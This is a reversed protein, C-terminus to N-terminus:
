DDDKKSKTEVKPIGFHGSLENIQSPDIEGVISVITLEKPEAAIIALGSVRNGDHRLFVETNEGKKKSTVGVLRSWGPGRLQARLPELDAPDYEGTKDFEFSKVYVSKLGSVIKKAQADEGKDSLFRGALQLLNSDLNVDVAESARDALLKELNAPLRIEQAVMPAAILIAAILLRM